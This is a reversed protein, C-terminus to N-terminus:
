GKKRFIVLILYVNILASAFLIINKATYSLEYAAESAIFSFAIVHSWPFTLISIFIASFKDYDQRIMNYAFSIAFLIFYTTSIILGKNSIKKMISYNKM